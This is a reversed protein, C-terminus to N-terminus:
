SSPEIKEQNWPKKEEYDEEITIWCDEERTM